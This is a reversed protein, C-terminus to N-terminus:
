SVGNHLTRTCYLSIWFKHLCHPNKSLLNCKYRIHQPSKLLPFESCLTSVSKGSSLVIQRRNPYTQQMADSMAEYSPRNKAMEAKIAEMNRSYTLNDCPPIMLAPYVHKEATDKKKKSAPLDTASTNNGSPTGRNMNSCRMSNFKM